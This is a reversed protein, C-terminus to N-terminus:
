KWSIIIIDVLLELTLVFLVFYAYLHMSLDKFHEKLNWSSCIDFVNICM